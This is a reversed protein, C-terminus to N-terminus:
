SSIIQLFGGVIKRGDEESAAIGAIGGAGVVADAFKKQEESTRGGGTEKCEISTFVAVTRGVMEPTIVVPTWGILDGSGKCLGAHLPRPSGLTIESATKRIIKGVWGLGVNQRFLRCGAASLALHILKQNKAELMDFARGQWNM